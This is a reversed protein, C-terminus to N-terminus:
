EKEKFDELNQQAYPILITKIKKHKASMGDFLPM